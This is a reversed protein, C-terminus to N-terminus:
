IRLLSLNRASEDINKKTKADMGIGQQKLALLAAGVVPEYRAEVFKARPVAKTTDRSLIKRLLRSEAKFIGGSLVIEVELEAMGLRNIGNVLLEACGAGFHSVIKIAAEDGNQAEEFILPAIDLVRNEPFKGEVSARMLADVDPLDFLSLVQERLSTQPPRGTEARYIANLAARGLASGGQLDNDHYYHYIFQCGDPALVACNAGSGAVLIAGYSQETGGRLAAISDNVIVVQEAIGLQQVAARLLEYEDEWDAGTHGGVYAVAQGALMGAQDFARRVASQTAQMATDMGTFAHCAGPGIGTGLLHGELDCIVARTGSGGQDVGIVYRM